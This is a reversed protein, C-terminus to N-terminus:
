RGRFGLLITSRLNITMSDLNLQMDWTKAATAPQATSTKCDYQRPTLHYYLHDLIIDHSLDCAKTLSM